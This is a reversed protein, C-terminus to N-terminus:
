TNKWDDLEVKRKFSSLTVVRINSGLNSGKNVRLKYVGKKYEIYRFKVLGRVGCSYFRKLDSVLLGEYAVLIAYVLERGLRCDDGIISSVYALTEKYNNGSSCSNVLYCVNLFKVSYGRDLQEVLRSVYCDIVLRVSAQSVGLKKGLTYVLGGKSVKNM